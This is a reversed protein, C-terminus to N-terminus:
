DRLATAAGNPREVNWQNAPQQFARDFTASRLADCIQSVNEPIASLVSFELFPVAELLMNNKCYKAESVKFPRNAMEHPM